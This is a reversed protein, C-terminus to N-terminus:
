DDLPGAREVLQGDVALGRAVGDVAVHEGLPDGVRHARADAHGDAHAQERAARHRAALALRNAHDIAPRASRCDPATDSRAFGFRVLASDTRATAPTTADATGSATAIWLTPPWWRSRIAIKPGIMPPANMPVPRSAQCRRGSLRKPASITASPKAYASDPSIAEVSDHDNMKPSCRM